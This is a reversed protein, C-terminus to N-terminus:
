FGSTYWHVPRLSVNTTQSLSVPMPMPIPNLYPIQSFFSKSLPLVLLVIVKPFVSMRDFFSSKKTSSISIQPMSAENQYKIVRM